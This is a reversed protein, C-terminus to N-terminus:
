LGSYDKPEEYNIDEYILLFKIDYNEAFMGMSITTTDTEWQAIYITYGAELALVDDMYDALSEGYVYNIEDVIPDGYIELLM